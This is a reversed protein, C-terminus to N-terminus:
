AGQDDRDRRLPGKSLQHTTRFPRLSYYKKTKPNYTSKIALDLPDGYKRRCEQYIETHDIVQDEYAAPPSMFLFLDHGKQAGVEAAARAPLFGIGVNDVSVETDNKEGWEKIYTKNFWEDYPPVFHVWQIIKLTKKAAYSRGPIIIAPGVGAALAGAGAVKIFDRRSFAGRKKAAM